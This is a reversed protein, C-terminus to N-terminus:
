GHDVPVFLELIRANPRGDVTFLSRRCWLPAEGVRELGAVTVRSIQLHARNVQAGNALYLGGLPIQGNRIAVREAQDLHDWDIQSHAYVLMPGAHNVWADRILLTHAQLALTKDWLASLPAKALPATVQQRVTVDVPHGYRGELFRTLSGTHTLAACLDADAVEARSLATAEQWGQLLQFRPTQM